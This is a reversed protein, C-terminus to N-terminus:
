EFIRIFNQDFDETYDQYTYGKDEIIVGLSVNLNHNGTEQIIGTKEEGNETYSFSYFYNGDRNAATFEFSRPNEQEYGDRYEEYYKGTIVGNEASTIELVREGYKVFAGGEQKVIDSKYKGIYKEDLCLGSTSYEVEQGTLDPASVTTSGIDSVTVSFEMSYTHVVGNKDTGAISGCGVASELIGNENEIAKGEASLVYIDTKPYPIDLRSSDNLMGYKLVYSSIANVLPPIQSDTLNGTYMKKGESETVEVIDQLSGVFADVIKEVDAAGEIEFPNEVIKNKRIDPSYVYYVGTEMDRNISQNKDRYFYSERTEGKETQVSSEEVAQNRVDVKYTGSAEVFARGDVKFSAAANITFNDEDGVLREATTKAADKLNQYGSGILVDAFASTALLAAGVACAILAKSKKSLKM